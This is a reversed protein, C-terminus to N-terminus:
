NDRLGAEANGLAPEGYRRDSIPKDTARRTSTAVTGATSDFQKVFYVDRIDTHKRLMRTLRAQTWVEFTVDYRKFRAKERTIEERREHANLDCAVCLVFRRVGKPQWHTDRHIEELFDTSWRTIQGKRVERYCKCSAVEIGSEDTREAYVDIGFQTQRPRGYLRADSIDPEEAMLDRCLDEFKGDGNEPTFDLSSQPARPMYGSRATSKREKGM